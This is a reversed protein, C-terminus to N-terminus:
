SLFFYFLMLKLQYTETPSFGVETLMQQTYDLHALFM